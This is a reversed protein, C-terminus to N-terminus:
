CRVCCRAAKAYVSPGPFCINYVPHDLKDFNVAKFYEQLAARRSLINFWHELPFLGYVALPMLLDQRQRVTSWLDVTQM